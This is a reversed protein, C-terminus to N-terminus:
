IEVWGCCFLQINNYTNWISYETCYILSPHLYCHFLSSFTVIKKVNL